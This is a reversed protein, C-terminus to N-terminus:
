ANFIGRNRFLPSRDRAFGPDQHYSEIRDIKEASGFVLPTRGHLAKPVNDLIPGYGDSARGGAQEVILAIPAAEYVHRLRGSEYGKRSDAPYLFAGGRMIIRHTEAVLSAVWRMNFERGRPGEAGALCDDIFARVPPHWHRYNSANIAFESTSAPIGVATSVLHFTKSAEDLAFVHTGKGLTLVLATHPGYAFYGAAVQEHGPRLFSRTAEGPVAAFVSFITGITINANINSSGDLPDVAVALSGAPDLSLVAEEEESAFYATPTSSIESLVIENAIVDLGLQRDGDANVAADEGAKGHAADFARIAQSIRIGASAM